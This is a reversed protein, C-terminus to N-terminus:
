VDDGDPGSDHGPAQGTSSGDYNWWPLDEPKEPVTDLTRSKCRMDWAEGGLWVYEALVKGRSPLALFKELLVPSLETNNTFFTNYPM